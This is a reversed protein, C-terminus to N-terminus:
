PNKLFDFVYTYGVTFGISPDRATTGFIMPLIGAKNVDFMDSATGTSVLRWSLYPLGNFIINGLIVALIAVILATALATACNGFLSAWDYRSARFSRSALPKELAKMQEFARRLRTFESWPRASQSRPQCASFLHVM